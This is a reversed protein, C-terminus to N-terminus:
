AMAIGILGSYCFNCRAPKTNAMEYNERARAFWRGMEEFSSKHTQSAYKRGRAQWGKGRSYYARVLLAVGSDPYASVWNDLSAVQVTDTVTFARLTEYVADENIENNVFRQYLHAVHAEIRAYQRQQLSEQIEAPAMGSAIASDASIATGSVLLLSAFLLSLIKLQRRGPHKQISRANM